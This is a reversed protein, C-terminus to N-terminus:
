GGFPRFAEAEAGKHKKEDFAQNPERQKGGGRIEAVIKQFLNFKEFGKRSTRSKKRFKRKM